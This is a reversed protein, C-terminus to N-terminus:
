NSVNKTTWFKQQWTIDFAGVTFSNTYLYSIIALKYHKDIKDLYNEHLFYQLDLAKFTALEVM